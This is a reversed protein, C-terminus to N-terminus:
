VSWSHEPTDLWAFQGRLTVTLGFREHAPQGNM